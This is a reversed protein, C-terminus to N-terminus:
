GLTNLYCKECLIRRDYKQPWSTKTKKTCKGCTIERLKGDFPIWRFNKQIRNMYYTNPLPCGIKKSFEIDAISIQFPKKYERDWFIKNTLEKTNVIDEVSDPIESISSYDKNEREIIENVRFGRKVQEKPNLPFHFGALSEDYPNPAFHGPFFQNWEKTKQMHKIIKERLLKYAKPSYGKNLIHYKKGVLGCCGFCNECQFCNACYDCFRSQNISFSNRCQYVKDQVGSCNFIMEASLAVDVCNLCDKGRIGGRLFNYSDELENIFFCNHSNKSDEINDGSCNESHTIHIARFYAQSQVMEKFFVTAQDYHTRSLLNWKQKKQFFEKKTLQKNGFCYQKNRLNCCFLCDSCNRCDFLFSSNNINRCDVCYLSNFCDFCNILDVCLESNKSYANFSSNKEAFSRYCYRIDEGKLVSHSLYANKSFWCDDTYESNENGTGMKHPIPCKQFLEWAQKFFPKEFNFEASSPNAYKIWKNKHWVPYPCKESFASVIPNGTKDCKRSHLAWHQWFAALHQMRIWPATTPSTSVNLKQLLDIELSSVTFSEGSVQCIFRQM